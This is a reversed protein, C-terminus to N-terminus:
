MDCTRAWGRVTVIRVVFSFLGFWLWLVAVSLEDMTENDSEATHTIAINAGGTSNHM